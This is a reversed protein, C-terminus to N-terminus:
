NWERSCGRIGRMLAQDGHWPSTRLIHVRNMLDCTRAPRHHFVRKWSRGQSLQISRLYQSWPMDLFDYYQVPWDQSARSDLLVGLFLPGWSIEWEVVLVLFFFTSLLNGKDNRLFGKWVWRIQIQNDIEWLRLFFPDRRSSLFVLFSSINIEEIGRGQRRLVRRRGSLRDIIGEQSIWHISILQVWESLNPFIGSSSNATQISSRRNYCHILFGSLSPIQVWAQAGSGTGMTWRRMM